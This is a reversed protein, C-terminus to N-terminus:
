EMPICVRGTLTEIINKQTCFFIHEASEVLNWPSFLGFSGGDGLVESIMMKGVTTMLWLKKINKQTFYVLFYEVEGPFRRDGYTVDGTLIVM